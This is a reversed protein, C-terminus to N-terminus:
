VVNPQRLRAYLAFWVLDSVTINHLKANIESTAFFHNESADLDSDLAVPIPLLGQIIEVFRRM